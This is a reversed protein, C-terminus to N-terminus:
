PCSRTGDEGPTCKQQQNEIWNDTDSRTIEAFSVEIVMMFCYVMLVLIEKARIEGCLKRHSFVCLIITVGLIVSFLAIISLM